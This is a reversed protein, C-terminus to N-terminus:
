DALGLRAVHPPTHLAKEKRVFASRL